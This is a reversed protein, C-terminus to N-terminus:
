VFFISKSKHVKSYKPQAPFIAIDSLLFWCRIHSMTFLSLLINPYTLFFQLAPYSSDGNYIQCQSYTFYTVNHFYLPSYKPQHSFIAVDSVPTPSHGPIQYWVILSHNDLYIADYIHGYINVLNSTVYIRSKIFLKDASNSRTSGTLKASITKAILQSCFAGLCRRQFDSTM